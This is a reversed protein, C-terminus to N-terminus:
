VTHFGQHTESIKDDNETGALDPTVFLDHKTHIWPEATISWPNISKTM